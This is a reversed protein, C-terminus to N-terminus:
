GRTIRGASGGTSSPYFSSLRQKYREAALLTPDYTYQPQSSFTTFLDGTLDAKQQGRVTDYARRLGAGAAAVADEGVGSQILQVTNQREAERQNRLNALTNTVEDEIRTAGEGRARALEAGTDIDVSGRSLGRNALAFRNKREAQQGERTLRDTYYDRTASSLDSEEKALQAAAEDAGKYSGALAADYGAQDLKGILLPLQEGSTTTLIEETTFKGRDIGSADPRIGYLANVRSRLEARKAEEQKQRQAIEDGGDGGM